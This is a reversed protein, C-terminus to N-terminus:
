NIVVQIYPRKNKDTDGSIVFLLLLTVLKGLDWTIHLLKCYETKKLSLSLSFDVCRVVGVSSHRGTDTRQLQKNIYTCSRETDAPTWGCATSVGHRPTKTNQTVHASKWSHLTAQGRNSTWNIQLFPSTDTTYIRVSHRIASPKASSITKACIYMEQISIVHASCKDAYKCSKSEMPQVTWTPGQGGKPYM